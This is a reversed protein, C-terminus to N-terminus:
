GFLLGGNTNLVDGTIRQSAPSALFSVVGVLDDVSSFDKYPAKQVTEKISARAEEPLALFMDTAVPGPSISNSTINKPGLEQAWVRSLGELAAKSASYISMGPVGSRAAISSVNIIRGFDQLHPVSEKILLIPGRVNVKYVQDASEVDAQDITQIFSVAANNVIIDIKGFAKITEDVIKKPGLEDGVDAQVAIAQGGKDKILKVLNTARDASSTYNIVVSAGQEAFAKVIGEGIGRTGGTVIAVKGQLTKSTM